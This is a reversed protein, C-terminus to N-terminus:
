PDFDGSLWASALLIHARKKWPLHVSLAVRPNNSECVLLHHGPTLDDGLGIGLIAERDVHVHRSTTISTALGVSRRRPREGDIRLTVDTPGDSLLQVVLKDNRGARVEFPIKTESPLFARGGQYRVSSTKPREVRIAHRTSALPESLQAVPAVRLRGPASFDRWNSARRPVFRRETAGPDLEALQVDAEGSEPSVSARAHSPILVFFTARESPVRADEAYRDQLAPGVLADYRLRTTKSGQALDVVLALATPAAPESRPLPKRVRVRLVLATDGARVIAPRAPTLRDFSVSSSPPESTAELAVAPLRAGHAAGHEVTPPPRLAIVASRLPRGGSPLPAFKHWPASLLAAREAESLDAWDLEGAQEAIHVRRDAGLEARRLRAESALLRERRYVRVLVGDADSVSQLELVVAPSRDRVDLNFPVPDGATDGAVEPSVRRTTGPALVRLPPGDSVRWTVLHPKPDLSGHRFAHAVVRIVDTNPEVPLRLSEGPALAYTVLRSSAAEDDRLVRERRGMAGVGLAGMLVLAVTLLAFWAGRM